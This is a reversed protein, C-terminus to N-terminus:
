PLRYVVTIVAGTANARRRLQDSQLTNSLQGRLAPGIGLSWAEGFHYRIHGQITYGLVLESFAEDTLDTYGSSTPLVGRRGQVIGLTPGGRLAFGWHGRRIHAEFLLPIELYSTRNSRALANRRMNTSVVESDSGVLVYITTDLMQTMYYQQGGIWVTGNVVLVTTDIGDLQYTTVTTRVEDKLSEANLQEVYSTYHLGAGLGFHEGQHMMEAGFAISGAKTITSAWDTTRDGTYRTSTNFPGGWVSLELRSRPRPPVAAAASDAIFTSDVAIVYQLTDRTTALTHSATDVPVTASIAETATSPMPTGVTVEEAKATVEASDKASTSAVDMTHDRLDDNKTTFETDPDPPTTTMPSLAAQVIATNETALDRSRTRARAQAPKEHPRKETASEPEATSLPEPEAKPPSPSAPQAISPEKTSTPSTVTPSPVENESVVASPRESSTRREAVPPIANKPALLWGAVGMSALLTFWLVFRRRRKRDRLADLEPRLAQWASEDFAHEREALKRRAREDFDNTASM